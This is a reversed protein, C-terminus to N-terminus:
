LDELYQDLVATLETVVQNIDKDPIQVGATSRNGGGGLKELIVQVNIDSMSRASIGVDDQERFVVFSARIGAINLLEDAAQAATIRNQPTDPVALAIDDKYIRAKQVIAYKAMASRLDSQLLRKVEATDAGSRRLFAAADFTRGGTRMSFNKTDLAIGALLAEAEFRLIDTPEVSYQLIETVLESASSAYPEHFNVAANQIYTAARRHHDIVAIRNCSMLLEPSEVQDPRNTDVVILLSNGDAELMATQDSIFVNEYEPLTCMKEILSKAANVEANLVISAATGCKRAVCCLGVAAGVSDLDAYKHGMIFISSADRMLETLSNAMVRSKVKTRKELQASRGGYFEFSYKNKIVAQDGGRSLAMDISLSAFQYNEALTRGDKGIGISLTCPIGGAGVIGRAVDLLSFKKDIFAQLYQEEFVFMYRDRDYKRLFGGCGTAWDGIADDIRSLIASKDKDSLSKVLEEYNDLMIISIIPRTNDFTEQLEIYETVDIWYTTALYANNVADEGEPLVISGFVRFVKDDVTILDPCETKGELLWKTSFGPVLDSIRVEYYREKEGCLTRFGQNYYIVSEENLHFIAVPIPANKLNDQTAVDRDFTVSEIYQLIDRQRNRASIRSYIFLLIIIGSEILALERSYGQVFFTALAFIILMIFYFRFNPKILRKIKKNM